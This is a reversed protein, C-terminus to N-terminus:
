ILGKLVTLEPKYRMELGQLEIAGHRGSGPPQKNKNRMPAEPAIECYDKVREVSVTNTEREGTMRVMWNFTNSISLAYTM